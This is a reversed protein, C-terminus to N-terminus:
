CVSERGCKNSVVILPWTLPSQGVNGRLIGINKITWLEELTM